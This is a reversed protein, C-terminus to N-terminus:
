LDYYAVWESLTSDPAYLSGADELTERVYETGDTTLPNRLFVLCHDCHAPSDSEGGGDPYPGQPWNDSEKYWYDYRVALPTARKATEACPECLLAAQYVYADM